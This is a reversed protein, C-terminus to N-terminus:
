DEPWLVLPDPHTWCTRDIEWGGGLAKYLAVSSIALTMQSKILNLADTQYAIEAELVTLFNILGSQYRLLSIYATQKSAEYAKKLAHYRKAEETYNVLSTEVDALANLLISKYQFFNENQIAISANIQARVRGFDILNWTLGPGFSYFGSQPTFLNSGFLSQYGIVGTFTFIPFLSGEAIGIQATAAALNREAARIDPRRQLLESPLGAFIQSPIHPIPKTKCLLNYLFAPPKGVLVSLQHM